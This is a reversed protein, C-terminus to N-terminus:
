QPIGAKDVRAKLDNIQRTLLVIDQGNKTNIVQQDRIFAALDDMNQPLGPIKLRGTVEVNGDFFGALRGGKGHVGVGSKSTGL